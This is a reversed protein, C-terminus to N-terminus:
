INHQESAVGADYGHRKLCSMFLIEMRIDLLERNVNRIFQEVTWGQVKLSYFRCEADSRITFVDCEKMGSSPVGHLGFWHPNTAALEELAALLNYENM